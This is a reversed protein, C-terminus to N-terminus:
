TDKDKIIIPLPLKDIEPIEIDKYYHNHEKLWEFAQIVKQPRVSYKKKALSKQTEDWPGCLVVVIEGQLGADILQQINGINNGVNNEYMSHWGYVGQHQDAYLVAAHSNLRNPSVIALEAINLEKLQPPSEGTANGNWLANPPGYKSKSNSLKEKQIEKSCQKCIDVCDGINTRSVHAAPSLVYDKLLPHDCTYTSLMLVISDKPVSESTNYAELVDTKSAKAQECVNALDDVCFPDTPNDVTAMTDCITCIRPFYELCSPNADDTRIRAELSATAQRLVKKITAESPISPFKMAILLSLCLLVKVLTNM